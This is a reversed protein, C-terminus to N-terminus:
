NRYGIQELYCWQDEFCFLARSHGSHRRGVQLEETKEVVSMREIFQQLTETM